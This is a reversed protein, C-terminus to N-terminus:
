YSPVASKFRILLAHLCMGPAILLIDHSHLLYWFPADRQSAHLEPYTMTDHSVHLTPSTM